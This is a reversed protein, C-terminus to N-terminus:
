FRDFQSDLVNCEEAGTCGYLKDIRSRLVLKVDEPLNAWNNAMQFPDKHLNYYENFGSKFECYLFNTFDDEASTEPINDSHSDNPHNLLTASIRRECRFTNNRSDVCFCFKEGDPIDFKPETYWVKNNKYWCQTGQKSCENADQASGMGNYEVLFSTRTIKAEAMPIMSIGDFQLSYESEDKIRNIGSKIAVDVVTPAIDINLVVSDDVAEGTPFLPGSAFMPVRITMEYPQRKDLIM